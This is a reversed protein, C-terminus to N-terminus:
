DGVYILKPDMNKFNRSIVQRVHEPISAAQYVAPPYNIVTEYGRHM